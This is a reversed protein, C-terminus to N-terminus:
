EKKKRKGERDSLDPVASAGLRLSMDDFMLDGKILFNNPKIETLEMGREIVSKCRSTM